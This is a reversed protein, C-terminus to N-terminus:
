HEFDPREEIFREVQMVTPKFKKHDAVSMIPGGALWTALYKAAADPGLRDRWLRLSRYRWCNQHRTCKVRLGVTGHVRHRELWVPENLVTAPVYAGDVSIEPVEPDDAGFEDEEQSGQAHDNGSQDSDSDDDDSESGSDSSSSPPSQPPPAAAAPPPEAPPPLPVLPEKSPQGGSEGGSEPGEADEGPGGDHELPAPPAEADALASGGADEGGLFEDDGDEVAAVAGGRPPPLPALGLSAQDPLAQFRLSCQAGLYKFHVLLHSQLRAVSESQLAGGHIKGSM